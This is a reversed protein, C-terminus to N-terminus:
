EPLANGYEELLSVNCLQDVKVKWLHENMCGSPCDGWGFSFIFIDHDTYEIHEISTGDLFHANYYVAKIEETLLLQERIYRVNYNQMSKIYVQEPSWSQTISKFGYALYLQNLLENSTYGPSTLLENKLGITDVFEILLGNMSIHPGTHINWQNLMQNLSGSSAACTNYIASLKELYNQVTVSDLMIQNYGAHSSDSQIKQYTLVEADELFYSISQPNIQKRCNEYDIPANDKRCSVSFLFITCFLIHKKM